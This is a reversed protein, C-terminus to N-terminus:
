NKTIVAPQLMATPAVASVATTTAAPTIPVAPTAVTLPAPAAVATAFQVPVDEDLFAKVPAGLPIHASTGTTLFGAIPVFAVAAVVGATGTTGKDNFVGSCRIQRDGVRLYLVRAEINGSKGWAGKNRISTIEGIAPTGAPIVTQGSVTINEAVEMDIRQGVRLAKGKTTLEVRTKMPVETGARLMNTQPAGVVIAAQAHVISAPAAAALAVVCIFNGRM